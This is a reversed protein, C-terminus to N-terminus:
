PRSQALLAHWLDTSVNAFLNEYMLVRWKNRGNKCFRSNPIKTERGGIRSAQQRALAQLQKIDFASDRCTLEALAV